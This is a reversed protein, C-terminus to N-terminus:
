SVLSSSSCSRLTHWISKALDDEQCRQELRQLRRHCGQSRMRGPGPAAEPEDNAAASTELHKNLARSRIATM